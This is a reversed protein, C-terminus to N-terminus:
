NPVKFRFSVFALYPLGRAEPVYFQALIWLGQKSSSLQYPQIQLKMIINKIQYTECMVWFVRVM